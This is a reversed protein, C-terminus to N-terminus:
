RWMRSCRNWWWMPAALAAPDGHMGGRGGAGQGGLAGYRGRCVAIAARKIDVGLGAELGALAITRGM